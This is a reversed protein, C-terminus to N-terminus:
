VAQLTKDDDGTRTGNVNQLEKSPKKEWMSSIECKLTATQRQGNASCTKGRQKELKSIKKVFPNIKLESTIDYNTKYDQRTYKANRRVFKMEASTTRSKDEERIAWTECEYLLAPLALTNYIKMRTHKQVQSPKLTRNIIGKLQLFKSIKITNNKKIKSHLLSVQTVSIARKEIINNNIIIKSRVPYRGKFATKKKTKM